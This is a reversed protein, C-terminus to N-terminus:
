TEWYWTACKSTLKQVIAIQGLDHVFNRRRRGTVKQTSASSASRPVEAWGSHNPRGVRLTSRKQPPEWRPVAGLWVEGTCRWGLPTCLPRYCTGAHTAKWGTHPSSCLSSELSDWPVSRARFAMDRTLQLIEFFLVKSKSISSNSLPKQLWSM